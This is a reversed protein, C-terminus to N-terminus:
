LARKHNPLNIMNIKRTAHTEAHELPLTKRKLDKSPVYTHVSVGPSNTHRAPGSSCATCAPYQM